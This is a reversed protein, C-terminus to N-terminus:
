QLNSRKPWSSGTSLPFRAVPLSPVKTRSPHRRLDEHIRIRCSAAQLHRDKPIDRFKHHCPSQHQVFVQGHQWTPRRCPTSALGFFCSRLLSFHLVCLRLRNIPFGLSPFSLIKKRFPSMGHTQTSPHSLCRTRPPSESWECNRQALQEAGGRACIQGGDNRIM